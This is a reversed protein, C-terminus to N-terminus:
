QDYEVTLFFYLLLWHSYLLLDVTQRESGRVTVKWTQTAQGFYVIVNNNSIRGFDISVGKSICYGYLCSEEGIYM